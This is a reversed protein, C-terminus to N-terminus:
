IGKTNQHIQYCSIFTWIIIHGYYSIFYKEFIIFKYHVYLFSFITLYTNYVQLRYYPHARAPGPRTWPERKNKIKPKFFFNCLNCFVICGFHNWGLEYILLVDLIVINCRGVNLFWILMCFIRFDLIPRASTKFVVSFLM